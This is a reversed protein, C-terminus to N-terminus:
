RPRPGGPGTAGSRDGTPGDAAGALAATVIRRSMPSPDAGLETPTFSWVLRRQQDRTAFMASAYGYTEGTKGWWTVGAVTATQLGDSYRAPSGDLMRVEAPPLTFMRELRHAPLLDGSFLATLFRELDGTSSVIEGDAWSSSMDYESVDARSGDKLDLYGHVYSGHLRPDNGHSSPFLTHHLGLPRLLRRRIEDGYRRGTLREIVLAALVYNIGRYEQRTGPAFKLPSGTVTAVIRHPTWRDYRHRLVEEPTRWAPLGRHDPLGSTHNLLHAVTIAAFDLPLLGPLLQRVPVDLRLRGEEALQLLVTAVFPKTISGARVRDDLGVARGTRLDAVGVTGQWCGASGSVRLQAGTSRPQTLDALAARLARPSPPPLVASGPQTSSPTSPSGTPPNHLPREHRHARDRASAPAASVALVAGTASALLARRSPRVGRSTVLRPSQPSQPEVGKYPRPTPTRASTKAPEFTM